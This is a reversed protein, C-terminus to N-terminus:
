AGDRASARAELLQWLGRHQALFQEAGFLMAREVGPSLPTQALLAGIQRAFEHVSTEGVGFLRRASWARSGTASRPIPRPLSRRVAIPRDM